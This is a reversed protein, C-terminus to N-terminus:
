VAPQAPPTLGTSVDVSNTPTTTSVQTASTTAALLSAPILLSTAPGSLRDLPGPETKLASASHVLRGRCPIQAGTLRNIRAFTEPPNLVTISVSPYSRKLVSQANMLAGLGRCDVHRTTSLDIEVHRVSGSVASIFETELDAASAASLQDIEGITLTDSDCNMKM